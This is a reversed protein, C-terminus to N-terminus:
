GSREEWWFFCFCGMTERSAWSVTACAREVSELLLIREAGSMTPPPPPAPPFPAPSSVVCVNSPLGGTEATAAKTPTASTRSARSSAKGKSSLRPGKSAGSGVSTSFAPAARQSFVRLSTKAALEARPAADAGRLTEKRKKSDLDSKLSSAPWSQRRFLSSSSAGSVSSRGDSVAKKPRQPESSSGGTTTPATAFRLLFGAADAAPGLARAM